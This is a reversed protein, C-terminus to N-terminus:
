QGTRLEVATRRRRRPRAHDDTLGAIVPASPVVATVGLVLLLLGVAAAQRRDEATYWRWM